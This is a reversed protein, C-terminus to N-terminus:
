DTLKIPCGESDPDDFINMTEDVRNQFTMNVSGEPGAQFWHKVGPPITFQGGPDLAIERRATYYAEKGEPIHLETDNCGEIFVHTHGYLVRLTEEKGQEGEYAPHMHQPLSQNPLLVIVTIRLRPSRLVDVFAMGEKYIDGLGFDNIAVQDWEEASLILGSKGILDRVAQRVAKLLEKDM